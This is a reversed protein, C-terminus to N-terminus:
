GLNVGLTLVLFSKGREVASYPSKYGSIANVIAMMEAEREWDRDVGRKWRSHDAPQNYKGMWPFWVPADDYIPQNMNPETSFFYTPPSDGVPDPLPDGFFDLPSNHLCTRDNSSTQPLLKFLISHQFLALVRGETNNNM